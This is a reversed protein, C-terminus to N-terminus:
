DYGSAMDLAPKRVNCGANNMLIDIKPKTESIRDAFRGYTYKL